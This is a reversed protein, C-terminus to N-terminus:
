VKERYRKTSAIAMVGDRISCAYLHNVAVHSPIPLIYPEDSSIPRANLLVKQLQAPLLPPSEQVANLDLKPIPPM